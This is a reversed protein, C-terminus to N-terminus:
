YLVVKIVVIYRYWKYRSDIVGTAGAGGRYMGGVSELAIAGIGGGIGGGRYIGRVFVVANVGISAISDDSHV